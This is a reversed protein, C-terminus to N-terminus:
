SLGREHVPIKSYVRLVQAVQASVVTTQDVRAQVYVTEAPSFTASRVTRLISDWWTLSTAHFRWFEVEISM